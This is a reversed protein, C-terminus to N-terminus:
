IHGEWVGDVGKDPLADSLFMSFLSDLGGGVCSRPGHTAFTRNPLLKELKSTLSWRPRRAPFERVRDRRLRGVSSSLPFLELIATASTWKDDGSMVDGM